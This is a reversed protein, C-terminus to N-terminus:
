AVYTNTIYEYLINLEAILYMQYISTHLKILAVENM